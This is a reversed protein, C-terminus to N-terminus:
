ERRGAVARSELERWVSADPFGLARVRAPYLDAVPEFLHGAIAMADPWAVQVLDHTKGTNAAIETGATVRQEVFVIRDAVPLLTAVAGSSLTAVSFQSDPEGPTEYVMFSAVFVDEDHKHYFGDLREKQAAYESALWRRAIRHQWVAADTGAAFRYARWAGDRWVWPTSSCFHPQERASEAVALLSRLARRDGSGAVFFQNRAPVLAVPDGDLQPFTFDEGPTLLLLSSQYDELNGCYFVGPADRVPEFFPVPATRRFQAMAVAMAEDFSLKGDDLHSRSVLAMSDPRDRFLCIALEGCWPTAAIGRDRNMDNDILANSILVRHRVGPMLEGPLTAPDITGPRHVISRVYRALHDPRAAADSGVWVRFNNDLYTTVAHGDIDPFAFSRAEHDYSEPELGQRRCEDLFAAVFQEYPDAFGPGRFLSKLREFM